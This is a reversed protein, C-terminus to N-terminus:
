KEPIYAVVTTKDSVVRYGHNVAERARGENDYRKHKDMGRTHVRPSQTELAIRENGSLQDTTVKDAAFLLGCAFFSAILTRKM